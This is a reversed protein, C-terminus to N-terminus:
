NLAGAPPREIHFIAAAARGSGVRVPSRHRIRSKVDFMRRQFWLRGPGDLGRHFEADPGLWVPGCGTRPKVGLAAYM